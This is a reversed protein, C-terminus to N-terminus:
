SPVEQSKWRTRATWLVSGAFGAVFIAILPVALADGLLFGERLNLTLGAAALFFLSRLMDTM